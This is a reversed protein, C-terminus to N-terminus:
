MAVEFDKNFCANCLHIALVYACEASRDTIQNFSLILFTAEMLHCQTILCDDKLDSNLTEELLIISM